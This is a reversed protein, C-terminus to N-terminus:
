PFALIEVMLYAQFTSANRSPDDPYDSCAVVLIYDWMYDHVSESISAMHKTHLMNYCAGWIEDASKRTQPLLRLMSKGLESDSVLGPIPPPNSCRNGDGMVEQHTPWGQVCDALLREAVPKLLKWKEFKAANNGEGGEGLYHKLSVRASVLDNCASPCRECILSLAKNVETQLGCPGIVIIESLRGDITLM